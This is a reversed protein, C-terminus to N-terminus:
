TVLGGEANITDRASAGAGEGIAVIRGGAVAIDVLKEGGRRLRANCIGLDLEDRVM